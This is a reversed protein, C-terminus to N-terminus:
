FGESCSRHTCIDELAVLLRTISVRKKKIIYQVKHITAFDNSFRALLCMCHIFCFLRLIEILFYVQSLPRFSDIMLSVSSAFSVNSAYFDPKPKRWEVCFASVSRFFVCAASSSSCLFLHHLNVGKGTIGRSLNKKPRRICCYTQEITLNGFHQSFLVQWAFCSQLWKVKAEIEVRVEDAVDWRAQM